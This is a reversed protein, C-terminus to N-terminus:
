EGKNLGKEQAHTLSLSVGSLLLASFWQRASMKIDVVIAFNSRGGSREWAGATFNSYSTPM